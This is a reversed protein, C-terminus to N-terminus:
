YSLDVGLLRDAERAAAVVARTEPANRGLPKQCFVAKGARLAAIAQRAHLANPTAIVIGDLPRDLLEEFSSTWPVDRVFARQDPPLAPDCIAALEALGSRMVAELRNRGIWGAGVFGLRPRTISPREPPLLASPNNM